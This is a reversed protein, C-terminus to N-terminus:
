ADGETLKGVDEFTITTLDLEEANPNLSIRQEQYSIAKYLINRATRANGFNNDRNAYLKDFFEMLLQLAGEDLRYGNQESIENAISLLMRPEYDEFVFENTFRSQLGPNSEVFQKMENTYGAVIVIFKGRYDEMRKLLTDIAEQGFDNGGRSLTYAEDIFLTGGLAQEIVKDTKTATQGQYGAVLAARDVEVLHGKELLGLERYIKSMLRAVTTKGTGPNGVFIAHLPKEIVKLGRDKRLQAVKLSSILKEVSQKVSDLGTLSGLEKMLKELKEPDGKIEYAKGEDAKKLTDSLDELMLKQVEDEKREDKTLDALRLIRKQTGKEIISRVIRANGFNKDRTRYIENFHKMLAERAKEDLEIKKGKLMRKTIEILEDPTYDEFMFSKTFRSQIGPNTEIFGKMEETYGAAICIFKGRDDEMRKLLTDVAEKGFDSGSGGKSALTYAEDIFLTGGFSKDIMKTTKEATGGIHSAVLGQRDTEILHGKPLITLASFIKSLIRAATTKGTGPSGLFLIHQGFKDKVDEGQELFYRVLKVMDKIDNKVSTLGTLKNLEDLAEQLSEDNITLRVDKAEETKLIANIDDEIITAMAEDTKEEDSLKSVRRSLQLKASEFTQRVLRANGFTQDRKRYLNTFEKNLATEAGEDISYEEKKLYRQFIDILEEPSYDEFNFTHNFRSKMGPNSTLFTEMEEPYGAAIVCFDGKKDEMRKLLVDIAEQGFDQGGKKVLTYAEDIFLIGGMADEIIQETKQATEGVYQGVLAARDVEVVHGKPVIEMSKFIEGLMRAITTKGTGPNGTFVANISLGETSKLGRKKRERQFELFDIFDRIAKKVSNLGVYSDLEELLEELSRVPKEEVKEEKKTEKKYSKQNSSSEKSGKDEPEFAPADFDESDKISETDVFFWKDAVKFGEIFIEVHSQGMSWNISEKSGCAQTFVISDWDQDVKLSFTHRHIEFDNLYWVAACTFVKNQIRFNPNSFIIEVGVEKIRNLDFQSYFTREGMAAAEDSDFMKASFVDAHDNPHYVVDFKKPISSSDQASKKSTAKSAPREVTFLKDSDKKPAEEEETEEEKMKELTTLLQNFKKNKKFDSKIEEAKKMAPRFQFLHIMAELELLHALEHYSKFEPEKLILKSLYNAFWTEKDKFADKALDLYEPINMKDISDENGSIDIVTTYYKELNKWAENKGENISICRDYSSKADKFNKLGAYARAKNLYSWALLSQQETISKELDNIAGEFISLRMLVYGRCLHTRTSESSLEVALNAYDMAKLPNGNELHAWALCIVAESDEPKEQYLEKATKLALRYRGNWLHDYADAQLKNLEIQNM